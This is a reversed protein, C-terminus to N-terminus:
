RSFTLAKRPFMLWILLWHGALDVDLKRAGEPFAQLIM